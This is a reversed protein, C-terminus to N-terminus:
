RKRAGIKRRETEPRDPVLRLNRKYTVSNNRDRCVVRACLSGDRDRGFVTLFGRAYDGGAPLSCRGEVTLGDAAGMAALRAEQLAVWERPTAWIVDRRRSNGFM